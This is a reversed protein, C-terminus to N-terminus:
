GKLSGMMVGKVFYKQAFPYVCLIPGSTIIITCYKILEDLRYAGGIENVDIDNAVSANQLLIERLFIALPFKNRDRLYICADFWANWHGVACFMAIVVITARAVPLLIKFLIIFDNAGDLMASEELEDPVQKFGTRMVLLNWTGIAGPIILAWRSNYMGLYRVVLFNPILGGSLYMTLVILINLVKRIKLNKRSLVYAGMSTLVVNIFTGVVVYFLTNGYGIWIDTRKFVMKYGELSFREPKLLLGTHILLKSPDSLSAMLVHWLPYLFILTMFTLLLGNVCTFLQDKWDRNKIAM